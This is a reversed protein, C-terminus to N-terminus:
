QGLVPPTPSAGRPNQSRGFYWNLSVIWEFNFPRPGTVPDVFGVSLLSHEKLAVNVGFTLDVVDATGARDNVNFAGRHDLPVNVHTEFIPAVARICASPDENQYIYYGIGVDNYLMTVDHPDTPVDIAEFGQVFFDGRKFIYGTFPQLQSDHFGTAAPTGALSRPGNPVTLALGASILSGTEDNRWLAYKGFMTMNGLATSTGGLGSIRSDASLSNLPLRMGFSADGDLFTKEFGFLERYVQMDSVVNGFHRNVAGNINNFYDFGFFVRDQPAPSQNDAIKFGRLWPVDIARRAGPFNPTPPVPPRGPVPPPPPQQTQFAAPVVSLVSPPPQDGQMIPTDLFRGAFTAARRTRAPANPPNLARALDESL